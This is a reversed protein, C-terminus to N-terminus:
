LCNVLASGMSQGLDFEASNLDEEDHVERDKFFAQLEGYSTNKFLVVWYSRDNLCIEGNQVNGEGPMLRDVAKQATKADM